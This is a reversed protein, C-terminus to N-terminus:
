KKIVPVVLAYLHQIPLSVDYKYVYGDHKLAEALTERVQWLADIQTQDQALTGNEVINAEMLYNLLGELKEYDHRIPRCFM